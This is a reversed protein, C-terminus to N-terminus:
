HLFHQTAQWLLIEMNDLEPATLRESLHLRVLILFRLVQIKELHSLTLTVWVASFLGMLAKMRVAAFSSEWVFISFLHHNCWCWEEAEASHWLNICCRHTIQNLPSSYLCCIARCNTLCEEAASTINPARGRQVSSRFLNKTSSWAENKVKSILIQFFFFDSSMCWQSSKM